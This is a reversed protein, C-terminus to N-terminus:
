DISKNPQVKAKLIRRVKDDLEAERVAIRTSWISQYRQFYRDDPDIENVITLSDNATDTFTPNIGTLIQLPSLGSHNIESNKCM